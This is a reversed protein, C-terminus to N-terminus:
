GTEPPIEGESPRSADAGWQSWSGPYLANGTMGALHMALLDHCATIGSGCYAIAGTRGRPEAPSFRARLAAADLFRGDAALNGAWPASHAGPIHGPRPDLAPDGHSYREATRADFVLAGSRALEDATVFKDAPWPRPARHVPAPDPVEATLEGPWAALGGDLVAVPEGLVHLLWWLRAATSGGADDYAVAPQGAAIGARGLAAAFAEPPPLPHRGQAPSAPASLDSDIDLWVAGPVHGARYAARGSRGDVYWRVDVVRVDGLHATLWEGSVLPGFEAAM